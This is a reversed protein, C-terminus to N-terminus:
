CSSSQPDNSEIEVGNDAMTPSISCSRRKAGRNWGLYRMKTDAILIKMREICWQNEYVEVQLTHM